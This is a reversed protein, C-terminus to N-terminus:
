NIQSRNEIGIRNVVGYHQGGTKLSSSDFLQSVAQQNKLETEVVEVVLQNLLKFLQRQNNVERVIPCYGLRSLLAFLSANFILLSQQQNEAKTLKALFDALLVFVVSDNYDFRVAKDILQWLYGTLVTKDPEVVLSFFNTAVRSAAIRYVNVGKALMLDSVFFAGLHPSLKSITKQGGKAIALVKGLDRTYIVYQRDFDNYPSQRLVIGATVVTSM